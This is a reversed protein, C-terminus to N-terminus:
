PSLSSFLILSSHPHPNEAYLRLQQVQRDGPLTLYLM